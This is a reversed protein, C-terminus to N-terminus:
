VIVGDSRLAAIAEADIGLEALIEDDHEGLRPARRSIRWPSKEFRYPAGPYTVTRELEPHEVDCAFGRARFHPDDIMEEPSYIIGTALGIEQTGIFFEYASVHDAILTLAERGAAAIATTEDDEGILSLDVTGKEAARQLFIAEPLQSELGLEVLWQYLGGNEKPSRPPMGTTVYRGDACRRQVPMTVVDVAHRGTQRQVTSEKVLWCYSAMETTVNAAAHMSVDIHQGEGSLDRYLLATLLSMVAYHCATQYGQNGGGRVPPISHDDYGCSWVPGGGALVTLDTSQADPKLTDRGFPTISAVILGSNQRALDPYDLGLAAMRGPDEAEIVFDASAALEIFLERGRQRELDLTMGRKSTNYHWWYLSHEPDPVDGVFPEYRRMLSGNPPEVTIVDAGMDALLKAAFCSREHSLEIVRIGTLVSTGADDSPKL